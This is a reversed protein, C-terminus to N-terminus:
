KSQLLRRVGAEAEATLPDFEAVEAANKGQEHKRFGFLYTENQPRWRFFFLRNKAVILERVAADGPPSEGGVALRSTLRYGEASLHVGNETLPGLKAAPVAAFLDILPLKRETALARVADCYGALDRNKADAGRMPPTAEFPPPTMLVLKAKTGALDALLKGYQGRFPPLEKAGGFSENQGYALVVVTPKLERTLAVLREYGKAPADFGARAEGFVTDGSWGLNRVTLAKGPNARLLAGEWHGSYQEREVLTGGLLVVRDGDALGALPHAPGAVLLSCALLALVARGLTTSRVM